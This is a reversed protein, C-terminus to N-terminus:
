QIQIFALVGLSTMDVVVHDDRVESVNVSVWQGDAYQYVQINEGTTVGPMYFNVSATGFSVNAQINVVNLVNGGLAAAQTKASNVHTLLPKQVSFNVNSAKGDLIINGGQGVPTAEDLGPVEVVSNSVYEAVTLGADTAATYVASSVGSAQVEAAFDAAIEAEISNAASDIATDSASNNASDGAGNGSISGSSPAASVVMCAGVVLIGSMMLALFKKM